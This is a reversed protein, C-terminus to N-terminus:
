GKNEQLKPSPGGVSLEEGLPAGAVQYGGPGPETVSAVALPSARDDQNEARMDLTRFIGWEERLGGALAIPLGPEEPAAEFICRPPLALCPAGPWTHWASGLEWIRYGSSRHGALPLPRWLCQLRLGAKPISTIDVLLCAPAEM